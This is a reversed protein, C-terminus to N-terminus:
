TDRIRTPTKPSGDVPSTSSPLRHDSTSSHPPKLETVSLLHHNTLLLHHSVFGSCLLIFSPLVFAPKPCQALGLQLRLMARCDSTGSCRLVAHQASHMGHSKALQCVNVCVCCFTPKRPQTPDEPVQGGQCGWHRRHM